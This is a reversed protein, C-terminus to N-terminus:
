LFFLFLISFSILTSIFGQSPFLSKSTQLNSTIVIEQPFYDCQGPEFCLPNSSVNTYYNGISSLNFQNGSSSAISIPNEDYFTNNYILNNDNLLLSTLSINRLLS